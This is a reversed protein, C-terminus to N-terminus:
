KVGRLVRWAFWLRQRLSLRGLARVMEIFRKGAKKRAKKATRGNM